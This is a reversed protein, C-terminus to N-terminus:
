CSAPSAWFRRRRWAAAAWPPANSAEPATFPDIGILRLRGADDRMEGTIVPSVLYGARRLAVYDASQLRGAMRGVLRALQDQGLTAAAADYSSRAEANIAQVGSWLATALALGAV